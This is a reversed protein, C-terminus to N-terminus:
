KSFISIIKGQIDKSDIEREVLIDESEEVVTKDPSNVISSVADMSHRPNKSIEVLTAKEPQLDMLKTITEATKGKAMAELWKGFHIFTILLVATEFYNMSMAEAMTPRAMAAIVSAVSAVYAVTTGMAVLTEMNATHSYVLSKYAKVYFPMGLWFQVPTALLFLVLDGISLGHVIQRMFFKHIPHSDPLAMLFIMAILVVPIAFLLSWLFHSRLMALEQDLSERMSARQEAITNGQADQALEAKYGIQEIMQALSRAGIVNPDHDVVASKALLNVHCSIVGPQKMMTREINAVCSSCTMGTVVLHTSVLRNSKSSSISATDSTDKSMFKSIKISEASFGLQLASQRIRQRTIFEGTFEFSARGSDLDVQISKPRIGHLKVFASHVKELCNPCYMGTIIMGAKYAPATTAVEQQQQSAIFVVKSATYGMNKVANIITQEDLIGGRVSFTGTHTLLNVQVSTPDVSPLKVLGRELTRVCSSCTMGGIQFKVKHPVSVAQSDISVAGLSVVSNQRATREEAQQDSSLVLVAPPILNHIIQVNEIDFGRNGIVKHILDINPNTCIFMAMEAQLNVHVSGPEADPIENQLADTISAVCSQCTMGLVRMVVKRRGGNNSILPSSEDMSIAFQSTFSPPFELAYPRVGASFRPKGNLDYGLDEIVERVKHADVMNGEFSFIGQRKELSVSVTSSIVGPLNRLADSVSKVCHQCTMGSLSFIVTEVNNDSNNTNSIDSAKVNANSKLTFEGVDYGLDEIIEKLKEQTINNPTNFKMTALEEELSVHVSEPDISSLAQLTKTVTNTCHSCTMGSIPITAHLASSNDLTTSSSSTKSLTHPTLEPTGADYGLDEIAESLIHQIEGKSKTPDTEEYEFTAEENEL